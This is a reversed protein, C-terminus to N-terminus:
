APKIAQPQDIAEPGVEDTWVVFRALPASGFSTTLAVDVADRGRAMVVRGIRPVNHRADFTYWRGGLFVEFWGSFDMPNPSLPVGIDGLYGTAYRAPINMCRCFTLALHTFDRCVGQKEKYVDWATKTPRAYQYGFEVHNHVWDCIARVRGWGEPTQGFLSWAIDSLQDVECYRSALLYMLVASPLDEVRHQIADPAQEDPQGSDEVVADDWFTIRGKPAILRSCRNGFTDTYHEVPVEPEVHLRGPRRFQGDWEPRTGLVLVMPAPAPVDFVIEYGIRILM